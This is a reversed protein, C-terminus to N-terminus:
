MAMYQTFIKTQDSWVPKFKKIAKPSTDNPVMLGVKYDPNFETFCFTSSVFISM